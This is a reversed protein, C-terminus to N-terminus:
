LPNTSDIIVDSRQIKTGYKEIMDITNNILRDLMNTFNHYKDSDSYINGDTDYIFLDELEEYFDYEIDNHINSPLNVLSNFNEDFTDTNNLFEDFYHLDLGRLTDSIIFFLMVHYYEILIFNMSKDDSIFDSELVKILNDKLLFKCTHDLIVQYKTKIYVYKDNNKYELYKLTDLERIYFYYYDIYTDTKNNIICTNFIRLEFFNRFSLLVQLICSMRDAINLDNIKDQYLTINQDREENMLLNYSYKNIRASIPNISLETIELESM